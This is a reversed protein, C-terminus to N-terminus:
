TQLRDVREFPLGRELVEDRVRFWRKRGFAPMEVIEQRRRKPVPGDIPVSRSEPASTSREAHEVGGFPWARSCRLHGKVPQQEEGLRRARGPRGVGTFVRGKCCGNRGLMHNVERDRRQHAPTRAPSMEGVIRRGLGEGFRRAGGRDFDDPVLRYPIRIFSRIQRHKRASSEGLRTRGFSLSPANAQTGRSNLRKALEGVHANAEVALHKGGIRADRVELPIASFGLSLQFTLSGINSASNPRPM